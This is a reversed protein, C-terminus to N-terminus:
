SKNNHSNNLMLLITPTDIENEQRFYFSITDDKEGVLAYLEPRLLRIKATNKASRRIQEGNAKKGNRVAKYCCLGEKGEKTDIIDVAYRKYKEEIPSFKTPTAKNLADYLQWIMNRGFHGEAEIGFFEILEKNDRKFEYSNVYTEVRRNEDKVDIFTLCVAYYQTGKDLERLDEFVVAYEKNCFVFPYATIYWNNERLEALLTKINPMALMMAGDGKQNNSKCYNGQKVNHIKRTM